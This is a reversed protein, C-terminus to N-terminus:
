VTDPISFPADWDISGKKKAKAAPAASKNQPQQYWERTFLRTPSYNRIDPGELIDDKYHHGECVTALNKWDTRLEPFQRGPKIHHVAQPERGCQQGNSLIVQCAPNLVRFAKSVKHWAASNLFQKYEDHEARYRDVAQKSENRHAPCLEPGDEVPV